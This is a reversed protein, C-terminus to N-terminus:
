PCDGLNITQTFPANQVLGFHNVCHNQMLGGSPIAAQWAVGKDEFNAV